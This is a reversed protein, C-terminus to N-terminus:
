KATRGRVPIVQLPYVTVKTSTGSTVDMELKLESFGLTDIGESLMGDTVHDYFWWGDWNNADGIMEDDYTQGGFSRVVGRRQPFWTRLVAASLDAFVTSGSIVRFNNLVTADDAPTAASQTNILFGRYVPGVPMDMQFGTNSATVDRQITPIRWTSFRANPDLGFSELAYVNIKPNTTFGTASGNIDTFTGWTIEIDLASLQRSDLATDLPRRALPMWFPLILVGSFTPNATAGDGLTVTRDVITGYLFYNLWRLANGDIDVLVDTANAIIRVRKVVAWEDGRKTNAQTNNANTCTLQGTLHLMLERYVMGRSLQETIQTSATFNVTKEKKVRVQQGM